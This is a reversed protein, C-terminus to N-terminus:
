APWRPDFAIPPPLDDDVATALSDNMATRTELDAIIEDVDFAEPDLGVRVMASVVTDRTWTM